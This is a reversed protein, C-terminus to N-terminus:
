GPLWLLLMISAQCWVDATSAMASPLEAIEALLKHLSMRGMEFGINAACISYHSLLVKTSNVQHSSM